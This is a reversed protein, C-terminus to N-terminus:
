WPWSRAAVGIAEASAKHRRDGDFLHTEIFSTGTYAPTAESLLPRIKSWAGDAGVLLDSRVTSGNAFAVEHQGGGCAAVSTAKHDWKITEPPLSEILM